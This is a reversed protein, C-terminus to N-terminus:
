QSISLDYAEQVLQDMKGSEVLETIVADIKEKLATSGKPLAIAYADSYSSTIEVDLIMLDDNKAVYAKAIPEEFIVADLKQSKLQNILEGNSTLSLITAKSFQETAIQEQISGKQTGITSTALSKLDTYEDIDAKNIILKNTSTYYPVSFDYVKAREETASIGSIAIDAKGNQVSNLVNDFSMTSFEVEVGLEEGIAKALEIDAGVLTDKGDVLTKFEFPAFEPNLAVVLTGKEEVKSLSTDETTKDSSSCAGLTIAAVAALGTMMYKTFKMLTRRRRELISYKNRYFDIM